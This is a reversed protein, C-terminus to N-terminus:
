RGVQMVYEPVSIAAAQDPLIETVTLDAVRAGAETQVIHSPYRVGSFARYMSFAVDIPVNSRAPDAVAIRTLLNMADLTGTLRQGDSTTFAVVTNAGQRTVTANNRLAAHLFGPPTLLIELRRAAAVTAGPRVIPGGNRFGPFLGIGQPAAAGGPRAGAGPPAGGARAGGGPPVGAPPGGAPPAGAPPAGNPGGRRPAIFPQDWAYAGSLYHTEETGYRLATGDPNTRVIRVQLAPVDFHIDAEYSKVVPQPANGGGAEGTDALTGNAVLHMSTMSATGIANQAADLVPRAAQALALPASALMVGAILLKKM